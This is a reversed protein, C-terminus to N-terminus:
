CTDTEQVAKRKSTQEAYTRQIRDIKLYPISSVLLIVSAVLWATEISIWEAIAGFLISGVFGGASWVMSQISLMTSRNRAEIEANLIVDIPPKTIGGGVYILWYFLIASTLQTQTLLLIFVVSRLAQFVGAVLGLRNDFWRTLPTSLLSGAVGAIFTGALIIGFVISNDNLNGLIGAFHPQWFNELSILVLGAAFTTVLLLRIVHSQRSMHWAEGIFAPVTKFTKRVSLASAALRNEKVLLTILTFRLLHFCIAAILPASYPTLITSGEPASTPLLYPIASGALTGIGLGLLAMIRTRAFLPQLNITPDIEQVTDVFWADLAGSALARSAGYIGGAFLLLPMSFSVLFLGNAIIILMEAWLTVQKRGFLDALSGTPVEFVMAALTISGFFLSIHFLTFGRAQWLLVMLALPLANGLWYLFTVLYNVYETRKITDM